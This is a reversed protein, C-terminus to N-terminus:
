NGLRVVIEDGEVKLKEGELGNNRVIEKALVVKKLEQKNTKIIQRLEESETAYELRVQDEITLGQRKRLFNIQRTLERVIGEEKLEQDIVTYLAVGDKSIWGKGAPLKDVFKVEKVNLEDKILDLLDNSIQYKINSIQYKRLIQRVKIGAEARLSHGIECITRVMMMSNLLKKQEMNWTEHKMVKPWSELHVSEMIQCKVNPNSKVNLMQCKVNQYIHEALFPCIPAVIKSLELLVYGLVEVATNECKANQIVNQNKIKSKQNEEKFRGRSRRLYWTSLDNVFKIIPRCAKDIEYSDLSETVAGILENLRALIWKDLIHELNQIKFEIKCKSNGARKAKCLMAPPCKSKQNKIESKADAYMKWFSLVNLCLLVVKKYVEDVGKESFNLSEGRVAPSSMLYFRMADAGYKDIIKNPDPYNKLRKSMKQSDEALIIGNVIVNKFPSQNYLGVGLVMLTYFWGRTQDIGEAIFDAPFNIHKLIDERSTDQALQYDSFMIESAYPMSGSEFWCDFVEKIRRMQGGCKDCKLKVEDIYPRHLDIATKDDQYVSPVGAIHYPDPTTMRHDSPELGEAPERNKLPKVFKKDQQINNVLHCSRDAGYPFSDKNLDNLVEPKIGSTKNEELEKVTGIVKVADCEKNECRWVPLPAGWYRSRSIAWDRAGSLWKGFRGDRIHKPVWNVKKNAAILREKLETVKVFWSSSAYNLLPTDCRWCYPYSHKVNEKAFLQGHRILYKLIKIDTEIPNEKPKVSLGAWPKVYDKFTGDRRVHQLFPIQYKQSLQYDDEGFAPAIHVIGTGEKTSVFDAAYVKFANKYNERKASVFEAGIFDFLPKYEIGVLDSGKLEGVVKYEKNELVEKVRDKALIYLGEMDVIDLIWYGIDASVALAMNGPLTWPTTTWALLYCKVNPNQIQNSMQGARKARGALESERLAPLCLMAPPCKDNSMGGKIEFKVYVSIDKVERYGLTVEFNSLTTECRPCLHMSKYGQYILNQKHLEKFIWWITEIYKSSMTKYDNDMDVWRGMRPIFKKWERAYRMVSDCCAQNFKDIGLEEIDKKTKLGLEKEILNELPLGHCDWGWRRNVQFGQMTKYRPIVDKLASAVIHGYHPLGTAFPPGDYFVFKVAANAPQGQNSKKELSKKFIQREQWFRLIEEEIKPFSNQSM